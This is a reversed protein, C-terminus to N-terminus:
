THRALRKLWYIILELFGCWIAAWVLVSLVSVLPNNYPSGPDTQRSHNVALALIFIGVMQSGRLFKVAKDRLTLSNAKM